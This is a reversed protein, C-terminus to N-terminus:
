LQPEGKGVLAQGSTLKVHINLEPSSIFFLFSNIKYM